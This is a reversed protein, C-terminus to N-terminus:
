TNQVSASFLQRLRLWGRVRPKIDFCCCGKSDSLNVAHFWQIVSRNVRSLPLRSSRINIKGLREVTYTM